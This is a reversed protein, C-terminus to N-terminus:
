CNPNEEGCCEPAAEEGADDTDVVIDAIIDRLAEIGEGTESSVPLMTIENGCPLEDVFAKLREKRKTNNLKDSKTLLVIFPTESEILYNAMTIDDTSPTHRMDVLLFVLAIDRDQAFYGGILEDWRRREGKAVKAYGYGPLDVFRVDDLRYFNITATKGPMSSVRALAKRNFLKNLLSSKGANSRGTFVFEPCDCPVLQSSLGFAREFIVKNYNM